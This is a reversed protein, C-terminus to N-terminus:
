AKSLYEQMAKKIESSDKFFFVNRGSKNDNPKIDILVFGRLM